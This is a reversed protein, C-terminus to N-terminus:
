AEVASVSLRIVNESDSDIILDDVTYAFGQILTDKILDRLESDDEALYVAHRRWVILLVQEFRHCVGKVSRILGVVELDHNFAQGIENLVHKMMCQRHWLQGLFNKAENLQDKKVLGRCHPCFKSDMGEM